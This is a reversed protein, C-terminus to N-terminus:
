AVDGQTRPLVSGQCYAPVTVYNEKSTRRRETVTIECQRTGSIQFVCMMYKIQTRLPNLHSNVWACNVRGKGSTCRLCRNNAVYEM